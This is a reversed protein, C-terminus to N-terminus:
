SAHLSAGKPESAEHMAKTKEGARDSRGTPLSPVLLYAILTGASALAVAAKVRYPLASPSIYGELFAALVFLLASLAVIELAPRSQRRLSEMRTYGQTAILSFGLRLGAGASLVIATLEYPGHSTVFEFFNPAEPAGAMYGFVTGLVVANFTLMVLSGIGVFAGLAFCQLGIGTNNFIYFGAMTTNLDNERGEIPEAYMERMRELAQQGLVDEAFGQLVFAAVGSFLFAGWFLAFCIWVARDRVLRRPVDVFLVRGWRSIRFRQSRYLINHAGGVLQHLYQVTEDPLRYSQALALDACTARYLAAFRAIEEPKSRGTWRGLRRSLEELEKWQPRRSELLDTVKM